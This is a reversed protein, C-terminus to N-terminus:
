TLRIPYPQRLRSGCGATIPKKEGSLHQAAYQTFFGTKLWKCQLDAHPVVSFRIKGGVRM